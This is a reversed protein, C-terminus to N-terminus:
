ARVLVSMPTGTLCWRFKAELECCAVSSKANRNKINHAEDLLFNAYSWPNLESLIDGLVVRWWRVQFLADKEKKTSKKTAAPTRGFTEFESESSDDDSNKKTKEVKKKTKGEDKVEPSFTQWESRVTEYTTIVVHAGKLKKPDSFTHISRMSPSFWAM